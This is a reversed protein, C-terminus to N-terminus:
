KGKKKSGKSEDAPPKKPLTDLMFFLLSLLSELRVHFPPEGKFDEVPPHAAMWEDWSTNSARLGEILEPLTGSPFGHSILDQRRPMDKFRAIHGLAELFSLWDLCEHRNVDQQYDFVTFKSLYFCLNAEEFTFSEDELLLSDQLLDLWQRLSWMNHTGVNKADVKERYLAELRPRWRRYVGDTDVTYFETRRWQDRLDSAEAEFENALADRKLHEQMHCVLLDVSEAM